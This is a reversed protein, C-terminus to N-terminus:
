SDAAKKIYDRTGALNSEISNIIDSQNKVIMSLEQIMNFLEKVNKELKGLEKYKENIDNMANKVQNHVAKSMKSHVLKQVADPDNVLDNVQEETLNPDITSVHRAIKEKSIAKVEMQITQSLRLTEYIKTGLANCISGMIRTEPEDKLTENTRWKKAEEKMQNMIKNGSRLQQANKDNLDNMRTLAIQETGEDTANAYTKKLDRLICVSKSVFDLNAKLQDKLGMFSPLIEGGVPQPQKGKAGLAPQAAFMEEFKDILM